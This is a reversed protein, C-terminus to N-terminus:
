TTARNGNSAISADQIHVDATQAPTNQLDLLPQEHLALAELARLRHARGHGPELQVHPLQLGYDSANSEAELVWACLRSLQAETKDLATSRLDLMTTAPGALSDFTRVHLGLGRAASKWAISGISDGAVYDRLGSVDGQKGGVPTVGQEEDNRSPMAPASIEAAPFVLTHVPV